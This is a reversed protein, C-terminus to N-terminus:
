CLTLLFFPLFIHSLYWRIVKSCHSCFARSACCHTEYLCDFQIYPYAHPSLQLNYCVTVFYKRDYKIECDRRVSNAYLTVCFYHRCLLAHASDPCRSRVWWRALILQLCVIVRRLCLNWGFPPWLINVSFTHLNCEYKGRINVIIAGYSSLSLRDIYVTIKNSANFLEEIFIIEASTCLITIVIESFRKLYFLM